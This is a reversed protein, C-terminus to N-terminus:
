MAVTIACQFTTLAKM